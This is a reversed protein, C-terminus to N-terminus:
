NVNKKAKLKEIAIEIDKRDRINLKYVRLVCNWYQDGDTVNRKYKVLAYHMDKNRDIMYRKKDKFEIKLTEDLLYDGTVFSDVPVYQDCRYDGMGTYHGTEFVIIEKGM